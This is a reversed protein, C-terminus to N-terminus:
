AGADGPRAAGGQRPGAKAEPTEGALPLQDGFAPGAHSLDASSIVLTKGPLKAIAERLADVFPQIAIREGDYSEGNNVSPDHVLAGFVKPYNGQADKGFSTSSGCSRCSSRISTRTTM